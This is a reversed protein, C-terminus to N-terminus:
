GQRMENHVERHCNSCLIDCKDLEVSLRKINWGRNWTPDKEKPDRHHFELAGIYKDYGCTSCKAGGRSHMYEVIKDIASKYTRRNWCPKCQYPSNQYFNDEGITECTRCVWHTNPIVTVIGKTYKRVTSYGIKLKNSIQRKTLGQRLLSICLEKM